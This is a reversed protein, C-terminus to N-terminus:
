SEVAEVHEVKFLEVGRVGLCINVVNDEKKFMVELRDTWGRSNPELNSLPGGLQQVGQGASGQLLLVVLLSHKVRIQALTEGPRTAYRRAYEENPSVCTESTSPVRNSNRLNNYDTTTMGRYFTKMRNGFNDRNEDPEFLEKVAPNTSTAAENISQWEIPYFLQVLADTPVAYVSTSTVCAALMVFVLVRTFHIIRSYIVISM